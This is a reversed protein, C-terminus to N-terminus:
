LGHVARIIEPSHDILLQIETRNLGDVLTIERLEPFQRTLAQLLAEPSADSGVYRSMMQHLDSRRVVVWEDPRSVRAPDAAAGAALYEELDQLRHLGRNVDDVTLVPIAGGSETRYGELRQELLMIRDLILFGETLIGVALLFGAAAVIPRMRGGFTRRGFPSAPRAGSRARVGGELYRIRTLISETLAAPDSTGPELSEKADIPALVERVRKAEAACAPCARLHRDLRREQTQSREGERHLYLLREATRCRM